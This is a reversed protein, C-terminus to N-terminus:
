IAVLVDKGVAVDRGGDLVAEALDNNAGGAQFERGGGHPDLNAADVNFHAAGAHGDGAALDRMIPLVDPGGVEVATYHGAATQRVHRRVLPLEDLAALSSLDSRQLIRLILLGMEAFCATFLVQATGPRTRM